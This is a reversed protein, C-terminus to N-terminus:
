LIYNFMLTFVHSDIEDSDVFPYVFQGNGSFLSPTHSGTFVGQYEVNMSIMPTFDYRLGLTISESENKDASGHNTKQAYSVYPTTNDMSYALQAYWNFSEDSYYAESRLTTMEWQYEGGVSYMTLATDPAEVTIPTGLFALQMDFKTRVTYAYLRYNYSSLELKLALMETIEFHYAENGKTADREGLFSGHPEISFSIDDSLEGQWKISIGDYSTIGLLSDYVEQPPRARTFAHGVYYYESDLFAPLRLRGVKFDYQGYNYGLYLWELAPDSWEDQPRKVAQVSATFNNLFQYDLQLGLTTDCDFCLDDNIERNLFVPTKNDSATISTSAFASFLLDDAVQITAYSNNAFMSLLTFPLFYYSNKM